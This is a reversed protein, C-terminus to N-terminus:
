WAIWNKSFCKFIEYPVPVVSKLGVSDIFLEAVKGNVVFAICIQLVDLAVDSHMQSSYGLFSLFFWYGRYWFEEYKEHQDCAFKSLQFLPRHLPRVPM